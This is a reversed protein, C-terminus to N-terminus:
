EKERLQSSSVDTFREDLLQGRVFNVPVQALQDYGRGARSYVHFGASIGQVGLVGEDALLREATDYGIHFHVDIGPFIGTKQHMKPAQTVLVPAYGVFQQLREAVEELVLFEKDRRALSLEFASLSYKGAWDVRHNDTESTGRCLAAYLARHGEHLPNWSGPYLDVRTVWYPKLLPRLDGTKTQLFADSEGKRLAWYRAHLLPNM